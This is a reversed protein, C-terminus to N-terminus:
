ITKATWCSITAATARATSRRFALLKRGLSWEVRRRRRREPRSQHEGRRGHDDVIPHLQPREFAPRDSGAYFRGHRTGLNCDGAGCGRHRERHREAAGRWGDTSFRVDGDPEGPPNNAGTDRDYFRERVGEHHLRRACREPLCLSRRHKHSTTRVVATNVNTLDVRANPIAAGTPDKVVGNIAATAQQAMAAPSMLRLASFCCTAAVYWCTNRRMRISSAM